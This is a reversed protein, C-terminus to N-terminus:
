GNHTFGKVPHCELPITYLGRVLRVGLLTILYGQKLSKLEFYPCMMRSGGQSNDKHIENM